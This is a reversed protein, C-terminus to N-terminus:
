KLFSYNDNTDKIINIQTQTLLKPKYEQTLADITDELRKLENQTKKTGNKINIYILDEWNRKEFNKQGFVESLSEQIAKYFGLSPHIDEINKMNGENPLLLNFRKQVEQIQVNKDTLPLILNYENKGEAFIMNIDKKEMESFKKLLNVVYPNDQIMSVTANAYKNLDWALNLVENTNMLDDYIIESRKNQLEQLTQINQQIETGYQTIIKIFENQPSLQPLQEEEYNMKKLLDDPNQTKNKNKLRNYLTYLSQADRNNKFEANLKEVVDKPIAGKEYGFDALNKVLTIKEEDTYIPGRGM